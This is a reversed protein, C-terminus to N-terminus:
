NVVPPANSKKNKIFGILVPVLSVIIVGVIIYEFYNEFGPIYGAAFFAGLPLLGGWILGGVINYSLFQRYPMLGVGAFIPTFTRVVPVFRALIIARKGYRKFFDRAREIHKKHFFFSDERTFIKPGVYKGFTYGFSDGLIAAVVCLAVILWIDFYGRYALLGATILLSDGPLFFGAFFGSEAFIIAFLGVYGGVILVHEINFM